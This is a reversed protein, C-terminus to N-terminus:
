GQVTMHNVLYTIRAFDKVGKISQLIHFHSQKFLIASSYFVSNLTQVAVKKERGHPDEVFAKLKTEFDQLFKLVRPTINRFRRRYITINKPFTIYCM